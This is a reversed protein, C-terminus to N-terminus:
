RRRDRVLRRRRFDGFGGQEVAHLAPKRFFLGHRQYDVAEHAVDQLLQRHLEGDLRLLQDRNRELAAHPSRVGTRCSIPAATVACRGDRNSIDGRPPASMIASLFLHFIDSSSILFKCTSISSLCIRLPTSRATLAPSTCAMM